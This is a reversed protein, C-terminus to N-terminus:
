PNQVHTCTHLHTQPDKYRTPLEHATRHTEMNPAVVGNIERGTQKALAYPQSPSSQIECRRGGAGMTGHEETKLNLGRAKYNTALRRVSQAIGAWM